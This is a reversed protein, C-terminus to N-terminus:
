PAAHEWFPVVVEGLTPNRSKKGRKQMLVMDRPFEVLIEKMLAIADDSRGGVFLGLAELHRRERATLTAAQGRIQEDLYLAVALAERVLLARVGRDYADVAPRSTTSVALGYADRLVGTM